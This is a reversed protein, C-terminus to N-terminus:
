SGRELSGVRDSRFVPYFQNKNNKLNSPLYLKSVTSNCEKQNFFSRSKLKPSLIVYNIMNTKTIKKKLHQINKFEIITIKLMKNQLEVM